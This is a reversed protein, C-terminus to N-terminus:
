MSCPQFLGLRGVMALIPRVTFFASVAILLRFPRFSFLGSSSLVFWRVSLIARNEGGNARRATETKGRHSIATGAPELSPYLIRPNEKIVHARMTTHLALQAILLEVALHFTHPCTSSHISSFPDWWCLLRREGRTRM